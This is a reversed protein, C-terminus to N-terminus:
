SCVLPGFVVRNGVIGAGAHDWDDPLGATSGTWGREGQRDGRLASVSIM